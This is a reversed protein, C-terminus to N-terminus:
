WPIVSLESWKLKWKESKKRYIEQTIQTKNARMIVGFLDNLGLPAYIKMINNELRVGIATATTEYHNIADEVSSYPKIDYGFHEGYWLHVRAQNKIDIMLETRVIKSIYEIVANEAEFALDSNDYYIFDIDSIGYMLDKGLQYNFVTQTICGAAIYYNQMKLNEAQKLVKYIPKNYTLIDSLLSIQTTLDSNFGIM